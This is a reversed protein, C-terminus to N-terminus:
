KNSLKWLEEICAPGRYIWSTEIVALIPLGTMWAQIMLAPLKQQDQFKILGDTTRDNPGWDLM